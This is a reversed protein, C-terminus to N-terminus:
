RVPRGRPANGARTTRDRACCRRTSVTNAKRRNRVTGASSGAACGDQATNLNAARIAERLSCDGDGNIQDATSDVTITASRVPSAALLLAVTLLAGAAARSRFPRIRAHDIMLTRRPAPPPRTRFTRYLEPLLRATRDNGAPPPEAYSM